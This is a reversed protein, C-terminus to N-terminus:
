KFSSEFVLVRASRWFADSSQVRDSQNMFLTSSFSFCVIDKPGSTTEKKKKGTEEEEKEKKKSGMKQYSEMWKEKGGSKRIRMKEYRKEMKDKEEIKQEM